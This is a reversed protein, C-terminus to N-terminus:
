WSATGPPFTMFVDPDGYYGPHIDGMWAYRTSGTQSAYVPEYNFKIATTNYDEYFYYNYFQNQDHVDFTSPTTYLWVSDPLSGSDLYMIDTMRMAVRFSNGTTNSMSHSLANITMEQTFLLVFTISDNYRGSPSLNYHSETSYSPGGPFLGTVAQGDMIMWAPHDTDFYRLFTTDDATTEEPTTALTLLTKWYWLDKMYDLLEYRHYEAEYMPFNSGTTAPRTQTFQTEALKSEDFDIEFFYAPEGAANYYEKELANFQSMYEGAKASMPYGWYDFFPRLDASLYEAACMAFFDYNDFEDDYVNTFGLAEARANVYAILAWDSEMILELYMTTRENYSLTTTGGGSTAYAYRTMQATTPLLYVSGDSNTPCQGTALKEATTVFDIDVSPTRGDFDKYMYYYLSLNLYPTYWLSKLDSNWENDNETDVTLWSSSYLEALGYIHDYWTPYTTSNAEIVDVDFLREQYLSGDDRVLTVPYKFGYYGFNAATSTPLQLSDPVQVDTHIRVPLENAGDFGGFAAQADVLKTWSDLISTPGVTINQVDDKHATIIVRDSRLEFWPFIDDEETSAIMTTLWEREDTEGYIFDHSLVVNSLTVDCDATPISGSEHDYYIYVFGGFYSMVRNVEGPTLKYTTVVDEYRMTYQEDYLAHGMGIQCYMNLPADLPLEIQITEAPGAYAGTSQLPFASEDFAFASYGGKITAVHGDVRAIESSIPGPWADAWDWYPSLFIDGSQDGGLVQDTTEVEQVLNMECGVVLVLSLFAYLIRKIM